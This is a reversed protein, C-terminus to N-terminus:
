GVPIKLTQGPYLDGATINNANCIEKIFNRLDKDGNNHEKAIDWLTDGNVVLISEYKQDEMGSVTSKVIFGGALFAILVLVAIFTVFRGLSYIRLGKSKNM